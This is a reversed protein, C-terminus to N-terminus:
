WVDVGETGVDVASERSVKKVKNIMIAIKVRLEISTKYVFVTTTVM